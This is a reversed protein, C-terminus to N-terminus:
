SHSCSSRELICFVRGKVGFTMKLLQRSRSSFGFGGGQALGELAKEEGSSEPGLGSQKVLGGGPHLEERRLGERCLFGGFRSSGPLIKNEMESKMVWFM